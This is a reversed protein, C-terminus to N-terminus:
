RNLAAVVERGLNNRILAKQVEAERISPKKSAQLTKETEETVLRTSTPGEGISLTAGNEGGINLKLLSRGEGDEQILSHGGCGTVFVVCVVAILLVLINKKLYYM